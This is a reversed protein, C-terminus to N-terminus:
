AKGSKSYKFSFEKDHNTNNSKLRELGVNFIQGQLVDRESIPGDEIPVYSGKGTHKLVVFELTRVNMTVPGCDLSMQSISEDSVEGEVVSLVMPAGTRADISTVVTIRKDSYVEVASGLEKKVYNM